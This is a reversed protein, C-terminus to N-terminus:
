KTLASPKSGNSLAKAKMSSKWPNHLPRFFYSVRFGVFNGKNSFEHQYATGDVTYNVTAKAMETFGINWIFAASLISGCKFNKERGIMLRGNLYNGGKSTTTSALYTVNSPGDSNPTYQKDITQSSVFVNSFGASVFWKWNRCNPNFKYSVMVPLEFLGLNSSVKTYRNGRQVFSYNEALAFEFGASNFSLGSEIKWHRNFDYRGIVDFSMADFPNQHFRANAESMGGVYRSKNVHWGSQVGIRWTGDEQAGLWLANLSLALLALLKKM